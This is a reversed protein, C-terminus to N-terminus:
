GKSEFCERGKYEWPDVRVRQSGPTHSTPCRSVGDRGLPDSDERTRSSGLSPDSVVVGTGQLTRAPSM